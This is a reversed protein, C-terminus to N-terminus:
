LREDSAKELGVVLAHIEIVVSSQIKYKNRGLLASTAKRLLQVYM